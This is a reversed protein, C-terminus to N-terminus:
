ILAAIMLSWIRVSFESDRQFNLHIMKIFSPLYQWQTATSRILFSITWMQELEEKPENLTGAMEETKTDETFIQLKPTCIWSMDKTCPLCTWQQGGHQGYTSCPVVAHQLACKDVMVGHGSNYLICSKMMENSETCFKMYWDDLLGPILPMKENRTIWLAELLNRGQM